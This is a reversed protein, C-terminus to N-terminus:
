LHKPQALIGVNYYSAGASSARRVFDKVPELFCSSSSTTAEPQKFEFVKTLELANRALPTSSRRQKSTNVVQVRIDIHLTQIIKTITDLEFKVYDFQIEDDVNTRLIFADLQALRKLNTEKFQELSTRLESALRSVESQKRKEMENIMREMQRSSSTDFNQRWKRVEDSARQEVSNVELQDLKLRLKNVEDRYSSLIQKQDM